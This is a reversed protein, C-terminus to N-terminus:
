CMIFFIRGRVEHGVFRFPSLSFPSRAGARSSAGGREFSSRSGDGLFCGGDGDALVEHRGSPLHTESSQQSDADGVLSISVKKTIPDRALTYTTCPHKCARSKDRATVAHISNYTPALFVLINTTQQWLLVDSLKLRCTYPFAM